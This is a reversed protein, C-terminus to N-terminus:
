DTTTAGVGSLTVREIREISELTALTAQDPRPLDNLEKNFEEIFKKVDDISPCERHEQYKKFCFTALLNLAAVPITIVPPAGCVQAVLCGTGISASVFAMKEQRQHFEIRCEIIDKAATADPFQVQSELERLNGIEERAQVADRMNLGISFVGLVYSAGTVYPQIVTSLFQNLSTSTAVDCAMGAVDSGTGVDCCSQPPTASVVASGLADANEDTAGVVATGTDDYRADFTIEGESASSAISPCRCCNLIHGVPGHLTQSRMAEELSYGSPRYAMPTHLAVIGVLMPLTPASAVAAAHNGALLAIFVIAVYRSHDASPKSVM